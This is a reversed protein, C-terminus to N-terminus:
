WILPILGIICPIPHSQSNSSISALHNPYSAHTANTLFILLCCSIRLNYNPSSCLACSKFSEPPPLLLHSIITSVKTQIEQEFAEGERERLTLIRIRERRDLSFYLCKDSHATPLTTAGGAVIAANRCTLSSAHCSKPSTASQLPLFPLSLWLAKTTTRTNAQTNNAQTNTTASPPTTTTTSIAPLSSCTPKSSINHKSSHLPHTASSPPFTSIM